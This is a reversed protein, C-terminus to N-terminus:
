QFSSNRAIVPFARWALLRTILDETFFAQAHGVAGITRYSSRRNM